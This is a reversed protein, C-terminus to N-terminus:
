SDMSGDLEAGSSSRRSRTYHIHTRSEVSFDRNELVKTWLFYGNTLQQTRFGILVPRISKDDM